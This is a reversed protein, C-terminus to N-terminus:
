TEDGAHRTLEPLFLKGSGGEFADALSQATQALWDFLSRAEKGDSFRGTLPGLLVAKIERSFEAHAGFREHCEVAAQDSLPRFPEMLDDALCFASYKNHHHLGLGPHLGAACLARATMARLVAYGYNLYRNQDELDADRKFSEGEKIKFLLPWYVRAAQAELNGQDGSKVRSAMGELPGMGPLLQEVRGLRGLLRDQARIKARVVQKWLQKRLPEKARAQAAFREAQTSHTQLPLAMSAPLHKGDSTVIVGGSLAVGSLVAHSVSIQPHALVLVAIEPLPVSVEAQGERELLLCEHRVSLRVPGSSLELIRNIM